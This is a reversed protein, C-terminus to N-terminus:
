TQKLGIGTNIADSYRAKRFIPRKPLQTLFFKLVYLYINLLTM